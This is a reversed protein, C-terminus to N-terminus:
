GIPINPDNVNYPGSGHKRNRLLFFEEPNGATQIAGITVLFTTHLGFMAKSLEGLTERTFTSMDTVSVITPVAKNAESWERVAAMRAEETAEVSEPLIEEVPVTYVLKLANAIRQAEELSNAVIWNYAPYNLTQTTNV